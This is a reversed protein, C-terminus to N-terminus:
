HPPAFEAKELHPTGTMYVGEWEEVSLPEFRPKSEPEFRIPQGPFVDMKINDDELV